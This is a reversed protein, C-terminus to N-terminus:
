IQQPFFVYWLLGREEVLARAHSHTVIAVRLEAAQLALGLAVFPLIDGTSGICFIAVLKKDNALVHSGVQM